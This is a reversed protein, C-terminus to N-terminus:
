DHTSTSHSKAHAQAKYRGWHTTTVHWTVDQQLVSTDMWHQPTAMAVDGDTNRRAEHGPEKERKMWVFM